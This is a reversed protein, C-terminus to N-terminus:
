GFVFYFNGVFKFNGVETSKFSIKEPERSKLDWITWILSRLFMIKLVHFIEEVLLLRLSGTLFHLRM